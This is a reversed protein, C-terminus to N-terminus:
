IQINLLDKGTSCCYLLWSRLIQRFTPVSVHPHPDPPDKNYFFQQKLENFLQSPIFPLLSRGRGSSYFIKRLKEKGNLPSLTGKVPCGQTHNILSFSSFDDLLPPLDQHIWCLSFLAPTITRGAPSRHCTISNHCPFNDCAWGALLARAWWPFIWASGALALVWVPLQFQCSPLWLWTQLGPFLQSTLPPSERWMVWRLWDRSFYQKNHEAMLWVSLSSWELYGPGYLCM